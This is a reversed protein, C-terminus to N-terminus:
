RLSIRVRKVNVLSKVSFIIFNHIASTGQGKNQYQM